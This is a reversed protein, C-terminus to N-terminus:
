KLPSVRTIKWVGRPRRALEVRFIGARDHIRVSARGRKLDGQHQSIEGCEPHLVSMDAPNDFLLGAQNSEGASVRRYLEDLTELWPTVSANVFDIRGHRARLRLEYGLRTGAVSECMRDFFLSYSIRIVQNKSSVDPDVLGQFVPGYSTLSGKRGRWLTLTGESRDAAAFTEMTALALDPGSVTLLYVRIPNHGDITTTQRWVRHERRFVSLRAPSYWMYNYVAMLLDSDKAHPRGIRYAPSDSESEAPFVADGTHVGAVKKPGYYGPLTELFEQVQATSRGANLARLVEQDIASWFTAYQRFDADDYPSGEPLAEFAKRLPEQEAASGAHPWGIGLACVIGCLLALGRARGSQRVTFRNGM